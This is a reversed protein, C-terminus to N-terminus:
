ADLSLVDELILYMCPVLLLLLSTAFVIGFGLSIAMPILHRAQSSTELIIPALGGFTTLTTLMIPRFRRLGAQHIASFASADGRKRNAYDIMILSDNVVVGSLAILGMLSM